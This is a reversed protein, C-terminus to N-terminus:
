WLHVENVTFQEFLMRPDAAIRGGRGGGHKGEARKRHNAGRRRRRRGHIVRVKVAPKDRPLFIKNVQSAALCADHLSKGTVEIGFPMTIVYRAAFVPGNRM